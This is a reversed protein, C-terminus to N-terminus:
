RGAYKRLEEVEDALYLLRDIFAPLGTQLRTFM